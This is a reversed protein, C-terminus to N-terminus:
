TLEKIHDKAFKLMLEYVEKPDYGGRAFDIRSRIDRELKETQKLLRIEEAKKLIEEDAM